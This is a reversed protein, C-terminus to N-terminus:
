RDSSSVPGLSWGAAPRSRPRSGETLTPPSSPSTPTALSVLASATPQWKRWAKRVAHDTAGTLKVLAPRGPAPYGAERAADFAQRVQAVLEGNRVTM